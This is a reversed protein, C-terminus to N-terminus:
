HAYENSSYSGWSRVSAQATELEGNEHGSDVADKSVNCVVKLLFYCSKQQFRGLM